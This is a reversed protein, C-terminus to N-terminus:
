ETVESGILFYRGNFSSGGGVHLNDDHFFINAGVAIYPMMCCSKIEDKDIDYSYLEETRNSTATYYICGNHYFDNFINTEFTRLLIKENNVVKYLKRSNIYYGVSNHIFASSGNKDGQGLSEDAIWTDNEENWYYFYGDYNYGYTYLKGEHVFTRTPSADCPMKNLSVTNTGDFVKHSTGTGFFHFMDKIKFFFACGAGVENSILNYEGDVIEYLEYITSTSTPRVHLYIKDAASSFKHTEGAPPSVSLTKWYMGAPLSGGSEPINVTVPSYGDVGNRATYVGNETVNLAEIVAAPSRQAVADLFMEERSFTAPIPVDMGALKAMFFEKRTIPEPPTIDYGAAAALYMEERTIPEM